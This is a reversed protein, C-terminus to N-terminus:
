GTARRVAAIAADVVRELPQSADIVSWADGREAALALFGERVCRHFEAGERDFHNAAGGSSRRALGVEVPADLLLTLDPAVGGTAIANAREVVERGLGRGYGQYAVTSATFRDCLVTAGRELAPVIVTAVLQARAAEFLMLEALPEAVGDADLLIGRVREGLPTGGPERTEVVERGAARLAAAVGALVSSKGAGDGGEFAIFAGRAM